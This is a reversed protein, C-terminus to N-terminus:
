LALSPPLREGLPATYAGLYIYFPALSWEGSSSLLNGVGFHALSKVLHYELYMFASYQSKSWLINYKLGKSLNNPKNPQSGLTITHHGPM